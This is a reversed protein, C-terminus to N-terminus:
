EYSYCLIGDTTSIVDRIIFEDFLGEGTTVSDMHLNPPGGNSYEKYVTINDIMQVSGGEFARANLENANQWDYWVKDVMAHHLWFIPENASFTPGPQCITSDSPCIGGLDGGFIEHVSGHAGTFFEFKTQFGKFDGVYGYVLDRVVEPTFSSNALLEQDPFFELPLGVFPRITFNRRLPHYSPYSLRFTTYVGFGGDQVHVDQSPLGWGGLGSKPDLDFITSMKVNNSDAAWNWYPSTGKYGCKDKLANEYKQVYWRYWPLFLGTFHIKHNMDMHMYVIDDYYSSSANVGVIDGPRVMPTLSEDHPLTALCNVAAIWEARERSSLARWEKRVAPHKCHSPRASASVTLTLLLIIFAVLTRMLLAM